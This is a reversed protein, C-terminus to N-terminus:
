AIKLLHQFFGSIKQIQWEFIMKLHQLKEGHASFKGWNLYRTYVTMADQFGIFIYQFSLNLFFQVFDWM